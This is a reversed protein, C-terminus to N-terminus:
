VTAKPDCPIYESEADSKEIIVQARLDALFYALATKGAIEAADRSAFGAGGIKVGMPKRRRRIEWSWQWPSPGRGSTIVYYHYIQIQTTRSRM